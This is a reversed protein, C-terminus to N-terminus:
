RGRIAQIEKPSAYVDIFYPRKERLFLAQGRQFYRIRNVEEESIDMLEKAAGIASDDLQMIVKYTSNNMIANGYSKAAAGRVVVDSNLDKPEQMGLIFISNFKRVSRICDSVQPLIAGNLALRQFEDIVGCCKRTGDYVIDKIQKMILYYMANKINDAQEDLLKTGFGLLLENNDKFDVSTYGNFYAGDAMVLPKIYLELNILQTLYVDEEKSGQAKRIKIEEQLVKLVDKIIPYENNKYHRFTKETIGFREYTKYIIDDIVNLAKEVESLNNAQYLKVLEKFDRIAEAKALETDYADIPSAESDNDVRRLQLVNIINNTAGFYVYKGGYTKVYNANQNHPDLWVVRVRERMMYNIYKGLLTTKGSGNKGVIVMTGANISELQAQPPNDLWLFPNQKFLGGCGQTTGVLLGNKDQLDEYYFPFLMAASRATMPIRYRYDLDSVLENKSWFPLVTKFLVEQLLPAENVKFGYGTSLASKISEVNDKLEQQDKSTVMICLLIGINRDKSLAMDQAVTQLADYQQQLRYVLEANKKEDSIERALRNLETTLYRGLNEKEQSSVYSYKVYPVGNFAEDLLGFDFWEPFQEVLLVKHYVDGIKLYDKGLHIYNPSLLSKIEKILGNKGVLLEDQYDQYAEETIKYEQIDRNVGNSFYYDNILDNEFWYALINECDMQNLYKCSFNHFLYNFFDNAKKMFSKNNLDGKVMIIFESRPNVDALHFYNEQEDGIIQNANVSQEYDIIKSDLEQIHEGISIPSLIKFCYFPIKANNYVSRMRQIYVERDTDDRIMPPLLKCGWAWTNDDLIFVGKHISEIGIWNDTTNNFIRKSRACSAAVKKRIARAKKEKAAQAKQEEKQLQLRAKQSQKEEFALQKNKLSEQNEEKLKELEESTMKKKRYLYVFVFVLCIFIVISTSLFAGLIFENM